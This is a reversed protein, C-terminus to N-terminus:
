NLISFTHENHDNMRKIDKQVTCWFERIQNEKDKM